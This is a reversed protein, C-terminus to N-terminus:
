SSRTRGRRPRQPRPTSCRPCWYGDGQCYTWGMDAIRPAAAKASHLLHGFLDTEIDPPRDPVVLDLVARAGCGLRDCMLFFRVPGPPEGATTLSM